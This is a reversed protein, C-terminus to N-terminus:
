REKVPRRADPNSSRTEFGAAREVMDEPVGLVGAAGIEQDLDPWRIATGLATIDWQQREGPTARQLRPFRDLPM